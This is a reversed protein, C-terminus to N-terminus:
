NINVPLGQITMPGKSSLQMTAGEVKVMATAIVEINVSEIKISSPTMTITSAGCTIKVETKADYAIKNKVNFKQDNDIEMLHDRHIEETKDRGVETEKDARVVFNLHREANITVKEEGGKDEMVIQNARLEGDKTNKAGSEPPSNGITNSRWVSRSKNGPLDHAPMHDANYLFGTVVPRDPDGDLFSVVVEHGVRPINMTGTGWFQMVRIWCSSDKDENTARDWHFRVKIRGYQDVHIGENRAKKESEPGTVIATEIGRVVPKPTVRAPCWKVSAPVLDLLITDPVDDEVSGSRFADGRMGYTMGAVVYEQNFRDIPHKELEFKYGVAAAAYQAEAKFMRRQARLEEIRHKTKSSGRSSTLFRGPWEYVEAADGPHEVKEEFKEELPKSPKEFDFDRMTAKFQSDSRVIERLDTIFFGSDQTSAGSRNFPVTAQGEVPPHASDNTMCILVHDNAKHEFYFYIGEEEFLRSIFDFDSERYQVCYDRKIVTSLNVKGFDAMVRHKELLKQAIDIATMEQFIAFDINQKMVYARPRVVLRHHYGNIDHDLTEVEFLLGHFSRVPTGDIESISVHAEKGILGLFDVDEKTFALCRLEFFDSLRERVTVSALQIPAPAGSIAIDVHRVKQDAM